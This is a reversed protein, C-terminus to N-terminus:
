KERWSKLGSKVLFAPNLLENLIEGTSQQVFGTAEKDAGVHIGLSSAKGYGLSVREVSQVVNVGAINVVATQQAFSPQFYATGTEYYFGYMYSDGGFGCIDGNPVFSPTFVIGGLIVPKVLVREKSTTLTRFWGDESRALTLLDDWYGAPTGNIFVEGNNAVVIPDSDLLNSMTLQLSQSYNLYYNDGFYGYPSHAKNFFPDKIGFIYQTDTTTKDDTSMYRGSGGYVWIKGYNDKSLLLPATVPRTVNYLPALRWPNITDLPNDSYNIKDTSYVGSSDACPITVKYLKGGSTGGQLYSEGFYLADVNFNLNSDLSVPSNMFANSEGTEFLWDNTGNKYPEGTKLDVVFVHGKNGSMGDYTTPGSGFVAFWKDKVRVIAPVSTSFGLATYTKEWLLKPHRPETVDICFYTPAFTRTEGNEVTNNYNFDDTVGIQKGGMNLGGILFTGWNANSVDDQYHTNNPLIEADFIKPKLDVYFVHTYDPSPLWKLQPLLAQPIYAWVEDGISEGYAAADSPETFQKTSADYQWSTFAHLLGDNAGVYVMTERNKFNEYYTQYSEDGYIVNFNDPPRSISVPTSDVIDGLKWTEGGLTRCRLGTIDNGLIWNILNGVRTDQDAGLYSWAADDRVGLFPKIVNASGTDFAVVEGNSDTDNYSPEDVVQNANKDIFTFIKRTSPSRSALNKGAEWLPKVENLSVVEYPSTSLDPYPIASSVDFRKVKTDGTSPDTFFSLIKDQNIDLTQDQDSDERLNGYPDVWLSQLYGLWKVDNYGDLVEPVYYAQVLNAEGEGSTALVSVATGSAARKLIDDIAALLRAELQYGDQAEYYTDPIGDHNADWEDQSTPGFEGDKEVFGGKKAASKLLNEADPDSGFAYVTYLTLNQDGDLDSRLDNTRAYFAVNDLYHSGAQPYSLSDAAEAHFDKLFQPIMQDYTSTGDTLLIVFNKACPV